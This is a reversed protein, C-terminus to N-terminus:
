TDSVIVVSDPAVTDPFSEFETPPMLARPWITISFEVIVAFRPPDIAPTESKAGSESAFVSIRFEITASM